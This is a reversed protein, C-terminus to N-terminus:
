QEFGDNIKFDTASAAGIVLFSLLLLAFIKKYM